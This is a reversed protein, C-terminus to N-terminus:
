LWSWSQWVACHSVNFYFFYYVFFFWVVHCVISVTLLFPADFPDVMQVMSYLSLMSITNSIAFCKILLLVFLIHGLYHDYIYDWLLHSIFHFDFVVVTHSSNWFWLSGGLPFQELILYCFRLIRLFFDVGRVWLYMVAWKGLKTHALWNFYHFSTTM